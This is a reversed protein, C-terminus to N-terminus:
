GGEVDVFYIALQTRGTAALAVAALGIALPTRTPRTM